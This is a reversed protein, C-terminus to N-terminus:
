KAKGKKRTQKLKMEKAKAQKRRLSALHAHYNGCYMKGHDSEVSFTENCEKLACVQVEIGRLKEIYITAIIANLTCTPHIEAILKQKGEPNGRARKLKERELRRRAIEWERSGVVSANPASFISKMEASSLYMDRRISLGEPIGQLWYFTEDAVQWLQELFEDTEDPWFERRLFFNKSDSDRVPLLPFWLSPDLLRIKRLLAQWGVIEDWTILDGIRSFEDRRYRFRGTVNLFRM